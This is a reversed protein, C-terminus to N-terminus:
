VEVSNNSHVKNWLDQIALFVGYGLLCGLTNHFVDDIEAFGRKLALQMLEISLSFAIISLLVIRFKLNRFAGGMLFGLPVFVVLNMINEALLLDMGDEQQLSLYSWFPTFNYKRFGVVPRFFVTSCYIFFIYEALLLGAVKRRAQKVGYYVILLLSGIFLLSLLGEYLLRPVSGYLNLIYQSFLELM